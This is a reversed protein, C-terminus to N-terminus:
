ERAGRRTRESTWQRLETNVYFPSNAFDIRPNPKRSTCRRRCNGQAAAGAGDQDARGRGGGRGSARYQTKSAVRARLVARKATSERFAQTLAAVRDPRGGAHRDRAGRCLSISEAPVDAMALAEAMSRAGAREVSPASYGVKRAGDNNIAPGSDGRPNRRWGGACGGAAEAGGRGVGSGAHGHGRERMSRGATGTRRCFRAKRSIRIGGQAPYEITVGGALAMDCERKLLSQCALHVAVLSTSCATQVTMSPGDSEVQVVRAHGALGQRQGTQNLQYLARREGGAAPNALLNTLLM